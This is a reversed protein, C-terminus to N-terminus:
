ENEDNQGAYGSFACFRDATMCQSGDADRQMKKVGAFVKHM